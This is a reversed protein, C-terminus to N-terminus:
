ADSRDRILPMLLNTIESAAKDLSVSGSIRNKRLFAQWQKIKTEDDTFIPTLATPTDNPLRTNRRAFTERLANSLVDRNLEVTQSLLWIDYFDKMRTNIVDLVVIAQFKEAIVSEPTYGMLVPKGLDLLQPLEIEVPGPLVVDGFGIDIQLNLRINGLNGKARLRIGRYDGDKRMTESVISEADFVVGDDVMVSCCEGVIQKIQQEDNGLKGLLDIDMTPRANPADWVKLM